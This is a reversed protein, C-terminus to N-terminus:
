SPYSQTAARNCVKVKLKRLNIQVIKIWKRPWIEEQRDESLWVKHLKCDLNKLIAHSQDTTTKIVYKIM